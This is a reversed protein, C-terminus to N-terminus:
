QNRLNLKTPHKRKRITHQILNMEKVNQIGMVETDWLPLFLTLM